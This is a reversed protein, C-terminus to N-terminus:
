YFIVNLGRQKLLEGVLTRHCIHKNAKGCTCKLIVDVDNNVLQAIKDLLLLANPMAMDQMFSPRYEQQFTTENWNGCSKLTKYIKFTEESPALDKFWKFNYKTFDFYPPPYLCILAQIYSKTLPLQTRDSLSMVYVTGAM